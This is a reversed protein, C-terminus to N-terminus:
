MAAFRVAFRVFLFQCPIVSRRLPRRDEANVGWASTEIDPSM